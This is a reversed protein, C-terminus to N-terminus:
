NHNNSQSKFIQLNESQLPTKENYALLQFLGVNSATLHWNKYFGYRNLESV